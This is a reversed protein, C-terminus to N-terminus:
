GENRGTSVSDSDRLEADIEGVGVRGEGKICLCVGALFGEDIVIHEVGELFTHLEHAIIVAIIYILVAVCNWGVTHDFVGVIATHEIVRASAEIGIPGDMGFAAIRRLM